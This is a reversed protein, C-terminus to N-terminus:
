FGARRVARVSVYFSKTCKTPRQNQYKRGNSFSLSQVWKSGGDSSWHRSAGMSEFVPPYHVKKGKYSSIVSYKQDYLTRLENITPIRWNSFGGTSLQRVYSISESYTVCGGTVNWSDKKTWMLGTKTDTVTGDGNDIFHEFRKTERKPTPQPVSITPQLPASGALKEAAKAISQDLEEVPCACKENVIKDNRATSIDILKLTIVFKTGLKGIKGAVMKPVGLYKGMQVICSTKDCYVSEQFQAEKLLDQMDERNIVDFKGTDFLASRLIDTLVQATEQRISESPKLEVVAIQTKALGPSAVVLISIILYLRKMM